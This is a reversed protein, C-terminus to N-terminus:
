DTASECVDMTNGEVFMCGDTFGTHYPNGQDDIFQRCFDNAGGDFPIDQGDEYGADYCDQANELGGSSAFAMPLALISQHSSQQM